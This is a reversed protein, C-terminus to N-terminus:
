KDRGAMSNVGGEGEDKEAAVAARAQSGSPVRRAEVDQSTELHIYVSAKVAAAEAYINTDSLSADFVQANTTTPRQKTAVPVQATGPDKRKSKRAPTPATACHSDVQRAVWSRRGGNREPIYVEGRKRLCNCYKHCAPCEFEEASRDFTLKPYRTYRTISTSGLPLTSLLSLLSNM